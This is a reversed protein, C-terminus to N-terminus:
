VPQGIGAAILVNRDIADQKCCDVVAGNVVISPVRQIGQKSARDAVLNDNMNLVSIQCADCALETVMEIATLCLPCGASYIEIMRKESM